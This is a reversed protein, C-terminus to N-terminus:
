PLLGVLAVATSLGLLALNLRHWGREVVPEPPPRLEGSATLQRWQAHAQEILVKARQATMPGPRRTTPAPGAVSAAAREPRRSSPLGVGPNSRVLSSSVAWSTFEETETYVQLSLRATVEDVSAWPIRAWRLPNALTVGHEDLRVHPHILMLHCGVAALLALGFVTRQAWGALVALVLLLVAAVIGMAFSGGSRLVSSRMVGAARESM